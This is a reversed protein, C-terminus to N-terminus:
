ELSEQPLAAPPIELNSLKDKMKGFRKETREYASHASDLHSGLKDFDELCKTFDTELQGLSELIRQASREIRLGKLGRVIAQLYAYFSNPSVPVVRKRLAYSALSEVQGEDKIITEYYVNEAPIYMLAFDFTGEEPLIYKAAIDDIHKKVDRAFDKQAQRDIEETEPKLLRKFNELPFKADVPIIGQGLLIVADVKCGNRFSYQLSFHDEPLIQKLLEGLFLEGLGGRLKPARLINQLSAIDKGIDVMSMTAQHLEGLRHQVQGVTQSYGRQTEQLFRSSKELQENMQRSLELAQNALHSRLQSMEKQFELLIHASSDGTQANKKLQLFVLLLVTLAASFALGSLLYPLIMAVNYGV